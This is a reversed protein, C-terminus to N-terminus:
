NVILEDNEIERPSEPSKQTKDEDFEKLKAEFREIVRSVKLIHVGSSEAAQEINKTLYFTELANLIMIPHLGPESDYITDLEDRQSKSIWNDLTWPSIGLEKVARNKNKIMKYLHLADKIDRKAYILKPRKLEGMIEKIVHSKVNLIASIEEDTKGAERHQRIKERIDRKNNAERRKWDGWSHIIHTNRIDYLAMIVKIKVNGKYLRIIRTRMEEVVNQPDIEPIPADNSETKKPTTPAKTTKSVEMKPRKTVAPTSSKSNSALKEESIILSLIEQPFNLMQATRELGVDRTVDRLTESLKALCPVSDYSVLFKFAEIEERPRKVAQATYDVGRLLACLGLNKPEM